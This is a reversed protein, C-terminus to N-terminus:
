HRRCRFQVRYALRVYVLSFLPEVACRETAHHEGQPALGRLAACPGSDPIPTFHGGITLIPPRM